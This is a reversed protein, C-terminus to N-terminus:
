SSRNLQTLESAGNLYGLKLSEQNLILRYSEALYYQVRSTRSDISNFSHKTFPYPTEM